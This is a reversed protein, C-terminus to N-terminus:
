PDRAPDDLTSPEPPGIGTLLESPAIGLGAAIRSLTRVGPDREAREIRGIDTMHLSSLQALREQTLGRKDRERRVNEALIELPDV